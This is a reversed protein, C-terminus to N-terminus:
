RLLIFKATEFLLRRFYHIRGMGYRKYIGYINDLRKKADKLTGRTSYGGFNFTSIIKDVAILKKGDLYVHTAFDFDDHMNILPYPYELLIERKTFAAPHCWHITSWFFKHKPCKAHKIREKGKSLVRLSGWALDFNEREFLDAMFEVADPEYWDDANINGVIAGTALAAGKNLADYMGKDPESIVRMSRGPRANFKEIYSRAIEATKDKSAGDIIIYEINDYTQSMVREITTAITKEANLSVTLITVKVSAM